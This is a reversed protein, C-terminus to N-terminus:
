CDITEIHEKQVVIDHVHGIIACAFNSTDVWVNGTSKEGFFFATGQYNIFFFTASWHPNMEESSQPENGNNVSTLWLCSFFIFIM